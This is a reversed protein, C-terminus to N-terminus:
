VMVLSLGSLGDKDLNNDQDVGGAIPRVRYNFLYYYLQGTGPGFKQQELFLGNDMITLANFVDFGQNKALVLADNILSNLRIELATKDLPTTLGTESAYYFM